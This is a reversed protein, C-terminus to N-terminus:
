IIIIFVVVICFVYLNSKINLNCMYHLRTKEILLMLIIIKVLFCLNCQM